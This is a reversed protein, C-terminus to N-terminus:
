HVAMVHQRVSVGAARQESVRAVIDLYQPVVASESWRARFAAYGARGLADRRARDRQLGRMAALLEAPTDFLEGAEAQEVIEPFPGIRRAIVPTAHKFAEILVIGFTEFTVSPVIVATAHRYYDKLREIDIRGLFRVNTLGSALEKLVGAHQGDGAILLDAEPYQRFLPIVDDLGKLRELRGVFLFYPKTQPAHSLSEQDPEPDPLFYPLVTMERPFGFERHKRRSFESMALFADIHRLQRTLYTGWRWLQPPRHYHLACRFCQRGTCLERQHRWLAHSPCVLWHEHAFYLKVPADGFSLLGPGGLLSVNNFNLVDFREGELIRRIRRGNMVPRGFQQTLLPSLRGCGARLPIVRVGDESPTTEPLPASTLAAYADADYIVTADHGRKVLARALRQIAIGDGGFNHPPYFTTLFGFRM